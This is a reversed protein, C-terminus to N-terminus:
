LNNGNYNLMEKYRNYLEIDVDKLYSLDKSPIKIKNAIYFTLTVKRLFTEEEFCHKISNHCVKCLPCANIMSDSSRGTIHHLELGRDSRGCKFCSYVYLFNDRVRQNFPNKLKM